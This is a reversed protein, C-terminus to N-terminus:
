ANHNSARRQIDLPRGYPIQIQDKYPYLWAIPPETVYGKEIEYESYLELFLQEFISQYSKFQSYEHYQRYTEDCIRELDLWDDQVLLFLLAWQKYTMDIKFSRGTSTRMEKIDRKDTLRRNDNSFQFLLKGSNDHGIM